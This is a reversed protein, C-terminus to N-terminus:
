FDMIVQAIREPVMKRYFSCDYGSPGCNTVTEYRLFPCDLTTKVTEPAVLTEVPCAM